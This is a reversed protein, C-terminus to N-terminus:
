TAAEREMQDLRAIARKMGAGVAKMEMRGAMRYLHRSARYRARQLLRWPQIEYRWTGPEKM